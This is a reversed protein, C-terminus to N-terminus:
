PIFPTVTPTPVTPTPQLTATPQATPTLTPSAAPTPTLIGEASFLLSVVEGANGLTGLDTQNYYVRLGAANGTILEIKEEGSFSYVNGPSVRGSFQEEGDATVRMWARQQAIIYLQLPNDDLVPLTPTAIEGGEAPSNEGRDDALVDRIPTATIALTADYSPTIALVEAVPPATPEAATSQAATVRALGWVTFSFLGLIIAGMIVLDPTLFRRWAPVYADQTAKKAPLTFFPKPKEVQALKEAHRLQLGEAYRTLVAEENLELFRAYNKLMGRAQVASPLRDFEGAEILDLYHKRIIIHKEADATSIGLVERQAAITSGIERFVDMWPAPPEEAAAPEEIKAPAEAAAPPPPPPEAPPEATKKASLREEALRNIIKGMGALPSQKAPPESEPQPEPEATPQPFVLHIKLYDAYLRLFGKAQVESPIDSWDDSELAALYRPRIHLAHSVQEISLGMEQRKQKLQDGFM